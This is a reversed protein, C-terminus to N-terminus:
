NPYADVIAQAAAREENDKTILPNTVTETTSTDTEMDYTTVEITAVLPEIASVTVVEQMVNDMEMTEENYVQEGTEQIGKVEARGESLVYLALRAVATNYEALQQAFQKAAAADLIDQPVDGITTGGTITKPFRTKVDAVHAAQTGDAIMGLQEGTSAYGDPGTRLAVYDPQIVDPGTPTNGENIWDLIAQYDRNAPDNPVSMIDNVLYGNEQTKVTTIIM